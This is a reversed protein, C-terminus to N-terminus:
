SSAKRTVAVHPGTCEEERPKNIPHSFIRSNNLAQKKEKRPQKIEIAKMLSQYLLSDKAKQRLGMLEESTADCLSLYNSNDFRDCRLSVHPFIVIDAPILTYQQTEMGALFQEIMYVFDILEQSYKKMKDASVNPLYIVVPNTLTRNGMLLEKKMYQKLFLMENKLEPNALSIEGKFEIDKCFQKDVESLAIKNEFCALVSRIHKLFTVKDGSLLCQARHENLKVFKFGSVLNHEMGWRLMKKLIPLCKAYKRPEIGLHLKLSSKEMKEQSMCFSWIPPPSQTNNDIDIAHSQM